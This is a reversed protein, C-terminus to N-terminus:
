NITSYEKIKHAAKETEEREGYFNFIRHHWGEVIPFDEYIATHKKGILIMQQVLLSLGGSLHFCRNAELTEQDFIPDNKARSHYFIQIKEGNPIEDFKAHTYRPNGGEEYVSHAFNSNKGM